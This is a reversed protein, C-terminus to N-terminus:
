VHARGIQEDIPVVFGTANRIDDLKLEGTVRTIMYIETCHDSAIVQAPTIAEYKM